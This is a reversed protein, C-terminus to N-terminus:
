KMASARLVADLWDRHFREADVETVVRMPKGGDDVRMELLGDVFELAVPMEEVKAGDWGAAM